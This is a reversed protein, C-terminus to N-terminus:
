ERRVREFLAVVQDEAAHDVRVPIGIGGEMEVM